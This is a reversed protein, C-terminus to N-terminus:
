TKVEILAGNPKAKVRTKSPTKSKRKARPKPAAKAKPAAKSNNSMLDLIERMSSEDEPAVFANHIDNQMWAVRSEFNGLLASFKRAMYLQSVIAALAIAALLLNNLMLEPM